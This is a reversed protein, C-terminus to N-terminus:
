GRRGLGATLRPGAPPRRRAAALARTAAEVAAELGLDRGAQWAREYGDTGLAATAAAAAEARWAEVFPIMTAGIADRLAEAAGLLRATGQWDGGSMQAAVVLCLCVGWPMGLGQFGEFAARLPAPAQDLDGRRWASAGRVLLTWAVGELDGVERLAAEADVALAGAQGPEGRASAVISAVLLAWGEMYTDQSARALRLSEELLAPAEDLRDSYTAVFGLYQLARGLGAVDDAGRSLNVAEECAAIGRELDGQLVALQAMDVLAWSRAEVPVPGTMALALTLWHRGESYHGRIDWFRYLSSSLPVATEGRGDQVTWALAARLNGHDAELRELWAAQEPGRIRDRAAEAVALFYAAHRARMVGLQGDLDLRELGYARLTELMRYRHSPAGPDEVAVLSRDVLRSLLDFVPEGDPEGCVAEAAELTFGGAFVGLRGFLVREPEALMGYSWAVVARLTQHRAPANRSGQTLLGFRDDLRAAVQGVGLASLRAAALEIALPLGDLRRCIRAVAGATADSLTFGPQVAVAREVFLRAAPAQGVLGASTAEPDALGLGPVPWVIEGTIGLRERGTTLIRLEACAGLLREALAAAGALLHEVNDLVLLARGRRLHEAVLDALPRTPHERVDLTAAVTEVILDPETLSALEVFWVGAPFDPLHRAAAELALRTKGVGGPGTLTVLATTEIAKGLDSLEQERGILTTLRPPLNNPTEPPAGGPPPPAPLLQPEQRLIAGHLDQLEQGPEIGLEAVLVERAAQYARLAEAQRGARYHALMLQSWFRERLPHEAVLVELEATVDAHRGLALDADLRDEFAQLRLADLRAIEAQALPRDAADVLAPGRWLDLAEGLRARAGGPDGDALARRGAVALREFRRADVQDPDVSVVYGLSSTSLVEPGGPRAARLLGRLESIRVYLMDVASRPADHGWLEEILRETSLAEGARVLLLALLRRHRPGGLPVVAGADLVEIPGLIRFELRHAEV